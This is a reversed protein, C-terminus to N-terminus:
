KQDKHRVKVEGIDGFAIQAEGGILLQLHLDNAAIRSIRKGVFEHKGTKFVLVLDREAEGPVMRFFPSFQTEFFRRNFTTDGRKFVSGALSSPAKAGGHGAAVSLGGGGAKQPAAAEAPAHEVPATEDMPQGEAPLALFIIPGLIPLVVSVGCVLAAPRGRFVAVEYAAYLNALFLVVLIALGGPATWAAMGGKKDPLEVRPVPKVVIEEGKTMEQPPVEIFPEVFEVAKPNNALMVLTEQPFQTWPIRESFGGVEQKIVLGDGTFSAAEGKIVRGNALKFDEAHGMVVLWLCFSLVGYIKRM